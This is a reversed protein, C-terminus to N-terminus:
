VFIKDYFDVIQPLVNESILEARTFGRLGIEHTYEEKDLSKAVRLREEGSLELAGGGPIICPLGFALAETLLASGYEIWWKPFIFVQSTLFYNALTEKDVWGPSRFLM